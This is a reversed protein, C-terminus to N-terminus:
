PCFLDKDITKKSNKRERRTAPRQRLLVYTAGAGGDCSPASALAIVWKRFPGRTLWTYVLQKLVPDKPSSLGRGHIVMVGRLGRVIAGRLFDRLAEEADGARLGHLDIHAQIAYRGQHLRRLLEAGIGPSAAEMYEPTDAVRYGAGSQILRQLADRVYQEDDNRLSRDGRKKPPMRWHRNTELPQVEAMAKAFLRDEQRPSLPPDPPRGAPRADDGALRVGSQKLLRDLDKFPRHAGDSKDAAM